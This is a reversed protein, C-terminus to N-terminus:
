IAHEKGQENNQTLLSGVSVESLSIYLRLPKKKIPPMLIPPQTLYRKIVEFAEQHQAEWKYDEEKKLKMLESFVQVKVDM